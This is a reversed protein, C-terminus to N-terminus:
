KKEKYHQDLKEKEQQEETIIKEKLKGIEELAAIKENEIKEIQGIDKEWVLLYWLITFSIHNRTM